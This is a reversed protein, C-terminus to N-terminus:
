RLVEVAHVILCGLPDPSLMDLASPVNSGLLRGSEGTLIARGDAKVKSEGVAELVARVLVTLAVHVQPRRDKGDVVGPLLHVHDEQRVLPAVPHHGGLVEDVDARLQVTIALNM